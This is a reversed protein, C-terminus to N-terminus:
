DSARDCFSTDTQLDSPTGVRRRRISSLIPLLSKNLASHRASFRIQPHSTVESILYFTLSTLDPAALGKVRAGRHM